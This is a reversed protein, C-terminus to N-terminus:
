HSREPPNYDKLIDKAQNPMAAMMIEAQRLQLLTTDLVKANLHSFFALASGLVIIALGPHITFAGLAIIVVSLVLGAIFGRLKWTVRKKLAVLDIDLPNKPTM